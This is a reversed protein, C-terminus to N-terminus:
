PARPKPQLRTKDLQARRSRQQLKQSHADLALLVVTMLILALIVALPLWHAQGTM